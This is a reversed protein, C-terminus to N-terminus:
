LSREIRDAQKRLVAARTEDTDEAAREARVDDDSRVTRAAILASLRRLQAGLSM